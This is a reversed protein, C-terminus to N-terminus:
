SWAAIPYGVAGALLALGVFVAAPIRWNVAKSPDGQLWSPLRFANQACAMAILWAFGAVTPISYRPASGPLLSVLTLPVFTSWLLARALRKDEENAFAQLRILPM